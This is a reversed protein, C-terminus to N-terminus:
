RKRMFKHIPITPGFAIRRLSHDITLSMRSKLAEASQEDRPSMSAVRHKLTRNGIVREDMCRALNPFRNSEQIENESVNEEENGPLANGVSGSIVQDM